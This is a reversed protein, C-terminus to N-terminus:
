GSAVLAATEAACEEIYTRWYRPVSEPGEQIWFGNFATRVLARTRTACRPLYSTIYIFPADADFLTRTQKLQAAIASLMLAAAGTSISEILVICPASMHVPPEGRSEVVSIVSSPTWLCLGVPLGRADEAVAWCYRPNQADVTSMLPFQKLRARVQADSMNPSFSVSVPPGMHQLTAAVM